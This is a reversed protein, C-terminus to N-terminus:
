VANDLDTLKDLLKRTRRVGEEAEIYRLDVSYFVNEFDLGLEECNEKLRKRQIDRECAALIYKEGEKVFHKLFNRGDLMDKKVANPINTRCAMPIITVLEIEPFQSVANVYEWLNFDKLSDHLGRCFCVVLKFTSQNNM